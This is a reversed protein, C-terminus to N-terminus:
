KSYKRKRQQSKCDRIWGQRKWCGTGGIDSGLCRWGTVVKGGGKRELQMCDMKLDDVMSWLNLQKGHKVM